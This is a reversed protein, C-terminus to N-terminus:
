GDHKSFMSNMISCIKSRKSKPLGLITKSIYGFSVAAIVTYIFIMVDEETIQALRLKTRSSLPARDLFDSRLKRFFALPEQSDILAVRVKIDGEKKDEEAEYDRNIKYSLTTSICTGEYDSGIRTLRDIFASPTPRSGEIIWGKSRMFDKDGNIARLYDDYEDTHVTTMVPQRRPLEPKKFSLAKNIRAIENKVHEKQKTVARRFLVRSEAAVIRELINNYGELKSLLSPRDLMIAEYRALDRQYSKVHRQFVKDSEQEDVIMKERQTPQPILYEDTLKSNVINRITELSNKSTLVAVKRDGVIDRFIELSKKTLKSAKYRDVPYAINIYVGFFGSTCRMCFRFLEKQTRNLTHMKHPNEIDFRNCLEQKYQEWLIIDDQFKFELDELVKFLEFENSLVVEKEDSMSETLSHSLEKMVPYILDPTQRSSSGNIFRSRIGSNVVDKFKRTKGLSDDSYDSDNNNNNKEAEETHYSKTDSLDFENLGQNQDHELETEAYPNVYSLYGDVDVDKNTPDSFDIGNNNTQVKSDTKPGEIGDILNELDKMLDVQRLASPINDEFERKKYEEVLDKTLEGYNSLSDLERDILNNRMDNMKSINENILKYDKKNELIDLSLKQVELAERMLRDFNNDKEKEFEIVDLHGNTKKAVDNIMDAMDNSPISSILSEVSVRAKNQIMTLGSLENQDMLDAFGERPVFSVAASARTFDKFTSDEFRHLNKVKELLERQGDRLKSKSKKNLEASINVLRSEIFRKLGAVGHRRVTWNNVGTHSSMAAELPLGLDLRRKFQSLINIEENPSFGSALSDGKYWALRDAGVRSNSLEDEYFMANATITDNKFFKFGPKNLNSNMFPRRDTAFEVPYVHIFSKQNPGPRYQKGYLDVRSESSLIFIDFCYAYSRTLSLVGDDRLVKLKPCAGYKKMCKYRSNEIMHLYCFGFGLRVICVDCLDTCFSKGDFLIRYEEEDHEKTKIKKVTSLAVKINRKYRLKLNIDINDLLENPLDGLGGIRDDGSIDKHNLDRMSFLETSKVITTPMNCFDDLFGQTLRGSISGMHRSRPIVHFVTSVNGTVTSIVRLRFIRYKSFDLILGGKLKKLISKVTPYSGFYYMLKMRNGEFLHLYCYGQGLLIVCEDCLESCVHKGMITRTSRLPDYKDCFVRNNIRLLRKASDGLGGIHIEKSYMSQVRVMDNELEQDDYDTSSDNDGIYFSELHVLPRSVVLGGITVLNGSLGLNKVTLFKKTRGAARRLHIFKALNIFSGAHMAVGLRFESLGTIYCLGMDELNTKICKDCFSHCILRGTFMMYDESGCATTPSLEADTLKDTVNVNLAIQLNSIDQHSLYPHINNILVDLPLTRVPRDAHLDFYTDEIIRLKATTATAPNGSRILRSQQSM